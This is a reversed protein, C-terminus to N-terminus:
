AGAGAGVWWNDATAYKQGMRRALEGIGSPMAPDDATGPLPFRVKWLQGGELLCFAQGKPLAIIDAPTLMPAAEVNVRDENRSQFDVDLTMDSTDTVGSVLTLTHVQVEPLQETLLEATAPSRVRLMILNNFNDVVQGAKPASGLRAELDSLSQTYATIQVGAGGSKNVMPIFENGILENFEDAHISIPHRGPQKVDDPLGGDVGHKYIHGAVSVLDAFMSNGVAGSVTFDSLADLGVYVIGKRKIVDLWDFIPRPDDTDYRPSILEGIKGTILKEMLPLLSATIKDFYTKDYQTASLLGDAVDDYLQRDRIFQILAVVEKARGRMAMPLDKDNIKPARAAVEAEWGPAAQALWQQCYEMFLQDMNMMYRTILEYTPLRGMAYLARAVINSFRWAFERFAASNGEAPLQNSIRTAVETIRSFSGIPNYRASFEPFGLHFLYLANERGARRAEAVVRRMLGADGKPDFVITVDGRRIDQTILIEALRTKGVRTTGLVLTHGARDALPMYVPVEQPEVGHLAPKGGVPPLPRLPNWRSDTALWEAIHNLLPRHEWATEAWRAFRYLRGPEVYRKAWPRETDRLRQTHIQSWRFGMGLFLKKRSVPVQGADLTYTKLRRLNSQYSIVALGQRTRYAAFLAFAAGVTQGLQTPMLLQHPAGVCIAAVCASTFASWLEVPPRLLAEIPHESM